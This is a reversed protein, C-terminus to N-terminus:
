CMLILNLGGKGGDRRSTLFGRDKNTEFNMSALYASLASPNLDVLEDTGWNEPSLDGGAALLERIDTAMLGARTAPDDLAALDLTM